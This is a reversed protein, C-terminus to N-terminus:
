THYFKHQSPRNNTLMTMCARELKGQQLRLKCIHPIIYAIHAKCSANGELRGVIQLLYDTM